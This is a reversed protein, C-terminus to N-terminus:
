RKRALAVVVDGAGLWAGVRSLNMMAREAASLRAGETLPFWTPDGHAPEWMQLIDFGSAELVRALSNRTFAYLHLPPCLTGYRKRFNKGTFRRVLDASLDEGLIARASTEIRSSLGRANDTDVLIVGGPRLMGALRRLVGGPDALHEIVHGLKVFDLTAPACEFDEIRSTTVDFGWNTRAKEASYASAEVLRLNWGRDALVKVAESTAGVNLAIGPKVHREVIEMQRHTARCVAELSSGKGSMASQGDIYESGYVDQIAQFSLGPMPDSFVLGCRRCSVARYTETGHDPKLTARIVVNSSRCVPCALNGPNTTM